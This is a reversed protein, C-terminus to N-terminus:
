DEKLFDLKDLLEPSSVFRALKNHDNLRLSYGRGPLYTLRAAQINKQKNYVSVIRDLNESGKLGQEVFDFIHAAWKEGLPKQGTEQLLLVDISKKKSSLCGVALIPRCNIKRNGFFGDDNISEREKLLISLDAESPCYSYPFPHLHLSAVPCFQAEITYDYGKEKEVLDLWGRPSLSIAVSADRVSILLM